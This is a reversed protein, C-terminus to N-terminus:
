AIMKERNEEKNKPILYLACPIFLLIMVTYTIYPVNYGFTDFLYGGLASGAMWGLNNSISFKGYADGIYEQPTGQIFLADIAYGKMSAFIDFITCVIAFILLSPSFALGLAGISCAVLSIIITQRYGRRDGVKGLKANIFPFIIMPVLFVITMLEM